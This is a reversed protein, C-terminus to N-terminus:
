GRSVIWAAEEVVDSLRVLRDVHNGSDPQTLAWAARSVGTYAAVLVAGRRVVDVDGGHAELLEELPTDVALLLYALDFGVPGLGFQEWDIALVDNGDRGPLNDPHADGHSPVRPLADLM